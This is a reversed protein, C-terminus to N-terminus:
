YLNSPNRPQPSIRLSSTLSLQPKSIAELRLHMERNHKDFEIGLLETKETNFTGSVTASEDYAGDSSVIRVRIEHTGPAVHLLDSLYGEVGKFLVVKTKRSGRLSHSYTSEGDIWVSLNATLFHHAVAIGLECFRPQNVPLVRSASNGNTAITRSLVKTRRVPVVSVSTLQKVELGHIPPSAGSQNLVVIGAVNKPPTSGRIPIAKWLGFFIVTLCAVTLSSIALQQWPRTYETPINKRASSQPHDQRSFFIRKLTVEESTKSPVPNTSQSERLKELQVQGNLELTDRLRQLDLVIEMGTQYRDAPRKAMARAIVRDLEPPLATDFVSVPMAEQNRVKMSVTMSSNGQFPRHGALMRYLVVGLSFLDSRGDVPEGKIQEPSMYAPTGWARRPQVSEPTGLQAIGFDAVKCHGDQSIIINSPKIDRHVVRQLHAYDLAEAVEQVVRVSTLLSVKRESALLNELSRGEIYEMVIYPDSSDPDEGVDFIAIIRPHALRGAAEAEVFFRERYTRTEDVDSHSLSITKIAVQRNIKPDYGKYVVGMAGRGLESLVQYRGFSARKANQM